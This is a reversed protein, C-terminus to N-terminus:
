IGTTAVEDDTYLLVFPSFAILDNADLDIIGPEFIGAGVPVSPHDDILDDPFKERRFNKVLEVLIDPNMKGFVLLFCEAPKFDLFRIIPDKYFYLIVFVKKDPNICFGALDRVLGQHIVAAPMEASSIVQFGPKLLAVLIDPSGSCGSIIFASIAIPVIYKIFKM